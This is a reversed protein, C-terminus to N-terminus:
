VKANEYITHLSQGDIMGDDVLDESPDPPPNEHESVLDDVPTRIYELPPNLAHTIRWEDESIQEKIANIHHPGMQGNDFALRTKQLIYSKITGLENLIDAPIIADWRTEADVETFGTPRLGLQRLTSVNRNIAILIEEDFPDYEPALGLGKKISALILAEAM